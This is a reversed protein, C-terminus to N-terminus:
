FLPKFTIREQKLAAPTGEDDVFWGRPSIKRAVRWEMDQRDM